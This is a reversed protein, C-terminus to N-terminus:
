NIVAYNVSLKKKITTVIFGVIYIVIEKSYESWSWGNSGVYDHEFTVISLLYEAAWKIRNDEKDILDYESLTNRILKLMHCADPVVVIHEKSVLNSSAGDFTISRVDIIGNEYLVTLVEKMINARVEATLGKIFYYAVPTKFHGNLFVLMIVLAYTAEETEENQLGLDIQGHYRKGDWEIGKKISMEDVQVGFQLKIGKSAHKDIM